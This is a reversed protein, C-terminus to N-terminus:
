RATTSTIQKRQRGSVATVVKEEKKIQGHRKSKDLWGRHHSQQQDPDKKSKKQGIRAAKVKERHADEQAAAAKTSKAYFDTSNLARTKVCFHKLLTSLM